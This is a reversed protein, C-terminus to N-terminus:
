QSRYPEGISRALAVRVPLYFCARSSTKQDLPRVVHPGVEIGAILKGLLYNVADLPRGSGDDRTATILSLRQEVAAALWYAPDSPNLADDVAWGQILLVWAESRVEAEGAFVGNAPTPSELISVAPLPTDSGFEIRGRYVSGALVYPQGNQDLADIGELLATLRQLVLLRYPILDAM